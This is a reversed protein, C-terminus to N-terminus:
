LRQQNKHWACVRWRSQDAALQDRLYTAHEEARVEPVDLYYEVRLLPARSPNGDYAVATRPGTNASIPTALLALSNGFLWGPRSVIEQIVPALSPSTSVQGVSTWAPVARWDVSRTTKPRLSINRTATTFAAAHDSAQGYFRLDAPLSGTEDVVLSLSASTITAQPPIQVNTWRLGVHSQVSSGDKFFELDSSTLVVRGDPFEEADNSGAAVRREIVPWTGVGSLLFFLGQYRCAAKIGVEGTCTAGVRALREQLKQRYGGTSLWKKVDHNGIVAFYPFNAGLIDTIQQDWLDPRDAYDFDGLHLVMDAGENEILQLVAKSNANLGQDGLFAVKLGPTTSPGASLGAAEAVVICVGLLLRCVGRLRTPRRPPAPLLAGAPVTRNLRRPRVVHPRPYRTHM